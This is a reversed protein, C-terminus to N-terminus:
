PKTPKYGAAEAAALAPYAVSYARALDDALQQILEADKARAAEYISRAKHLGAEYAGAAEWNRMDPQWTEIEIAEDSMLPERKTNSMTNTNTITTM